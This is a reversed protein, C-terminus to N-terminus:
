AALEGRRRSRRLAAGTLGFGAILLAWAAPEPVGASLNYGIAQLAVVEPSYRHLTLNPEGNCGAWEQVAHLGDNCAYRAWDGYDGSPGQNFIEWGHAGGDISFYSFAAPNLTFSPTHYGAYRYLDLGGIATPFAGRTNLTTGIAGIGLVEDVEHFLASLGDFQAPGVASSYSWENPLSNDLAVIGDLNGHGLVGDPGLVGVALGNGLARRNASSADIDPRGTTAPGNGWVLNSVALNLVANEPHLAADNALRGVYPAYPSRYLGTLSHASPGGFNAMAFRINVNVPNTFGSYFSAVRYIASEIQGANSAETISADFSPIVTLAHSPAAAALALSGALAAMARVRM